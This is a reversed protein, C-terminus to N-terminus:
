KTKTQQLQLWQQHYKQYAKLDNLYTSIQQLVQLVMARNDPLSLAAELQLQAQQYLDRGKAEERQAQSTEGAKRHAQAQQLWQSGQTYYLRGLSFHGLGQQPELAIAQKYVAAAAEPQQSQELLNGYGIHIVYDQPHRKLAAQYAKLAQPRQEPLRLYLDLQQRELVESVTQYRQQLEALGSQRVAPQIQQLFVLGAQIKQLAEAPPRKLHNELLRASRYYVYALDPDPLKPPTQQYLALAREYHKLALPIEGLSQAVQGQLQELMYNQGALQNAIQLYQYALQLDQVWTAPRQQATQYLALGKNQLDQLLLRMDAAMPKLWQQQQDLQRLQAYDQLLSELLSLSESPSLTEKLFRQLKGKGQRYLQEPSSATATQAAAPLVSWVPVVSCTLGGLSAAWFVGMLRKLASDSFLRKFQVYM